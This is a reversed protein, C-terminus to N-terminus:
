INFRKVKSNHAFFQFNENEPELMFDVFEEISYFVYQRSCPECKVEADICKKCVKMAMALNVEHTGNENELCEFDFFIFGAFKKDKKKLEDGSLIYCL